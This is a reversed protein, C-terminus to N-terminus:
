AGPEDADGDIAAQLVDRAGTAQALEAELTARAEDDREAKLAQELERVRAIAQAIAEAREAASAAEDAKDFILAEAAPEAVDAAPETRRQARAGEPIVPREPDLARQNMFSPSVIEIGARHLADLMAGRLRSRATLLQKVEGLFGAIRYTVSFDGLDRIQVFPEALNAAEAAQLLCAEIRDRPVDYGLSVTASVITGSERVVTVPHTVLLLNPITTLDRDETQLETHLLGQDSVRGFHEEVRVFDGAQINKITRLMLGAMANGIFTTSSLAITATVIVGTLSLLQERSKDPIPLAILVGLLVAASLGFTVLQRTTAGQGGAVPWRRTLLRRVVAAVAIGVGATALAPLWRVLADLLWDM